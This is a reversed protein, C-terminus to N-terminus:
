SVLDSSVANVVCFDPKWSERERVQTQSSSRQTEFVGRGRTRKYFQKQVNSSQKSPITRKKVRFWRQKLPLHVSDTFFDGLLWLNIRLVLQKKTKALTFEEQDQTAHFNFDYFVQFLPCNLSTNRAKRFILTDRVRSTLQM